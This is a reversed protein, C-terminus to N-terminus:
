HSGLAFINKREHVSANKQINVDSNSSLLVKILSQQKEQLDYYSLPLKQPTKSKNKM